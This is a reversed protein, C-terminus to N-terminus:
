LMTRQLIFDVIPKPDSLGHPHHGCESKSILKIDGGMQQYREAVVGTNENWPVVEDSDGYVHLIPINNEALPLLNLYGSGSVEELCNAIM